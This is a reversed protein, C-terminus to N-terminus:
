IHDLDCKSRAMTLNIYNDVYVEIMFKLSHSDASVDSLAEYEDSFRLQTVLFPLGFKM